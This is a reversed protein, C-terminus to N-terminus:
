LPARVQLKGLNSLRKRTREVHEGVYVAHFTDQHRPTLKVQPKTPRVVVAAELASVQNGCRPLYRGSGTRALWGRDAADDLDAFEDRLAGFGDVILM